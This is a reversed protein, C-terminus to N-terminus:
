LFLAKCLVRSAFAVVVLMFVAKARFCFLIVPAVVVTSVLSKVADPANVLSALPFNAAVM